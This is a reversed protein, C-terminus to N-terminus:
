RDCCHRLASPLLFIPFSFISPSQRGTKLEEESFAVVLSGNNIYKVGLEQAVRKMMANGQVNFKAKLTGTPADFGAHVIGSNAKSQGMCVDDEKELLCINLKYRSLERMIMGGIVGGGIIAVDYLNVM